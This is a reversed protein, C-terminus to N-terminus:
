LEIGIPETTLELIQPCVPLLYFHLFVWSQVSVFYMERSKVDILFDRYELGGNVLVDLTGKKEIDSRVTLLM